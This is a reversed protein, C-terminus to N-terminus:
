TEESPLVEMLLSSCKLELLTKRSNLLAFPINTGFLPKFQMQKKFSIEM